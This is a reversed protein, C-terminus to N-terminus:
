TVATLDEASFEVTRKAGRFEKGTIYEANHGLGSGYVQAYIDARQAQAIGDESGAAGKTIAHFESM